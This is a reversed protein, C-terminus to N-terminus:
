LKYTKNLRASYVTFILSTFLLSSELDPDPSSDVSPAEDSLEGLLDGGSRSGIMFGDDSSLRMGTGGGVGLLPTEM